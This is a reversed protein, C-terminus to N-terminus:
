AAGAGRKRAIEYLAIGAAVSVNLSGVASGRMPIQFRLDCTRAVLPRIGSGESGLVLCLPVAADLQWLPRADAGGALAAIWLETAGASAKTVAPTVAAARDRPVVLGQAGFLHASRAIAGLNHPDTVGDLAVLLGAPGAARALAVLEDADAYSYAGAVAVVGQHNADPGALADLEAAERLDIAINHRRALDALDALPERAGARDGRDARGRSLWLASVDPRALRLLERVPGIGYVIRGRPKAMIM